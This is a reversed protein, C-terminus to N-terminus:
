ALVALQFGFCSAFVPFNIKSVIDCCNLATQFLDVSAESAGGVLLADYGDLVERGFNRREFVNLTDLEDSRIRCYRVFSEFEERRVRPDHRIQLLLLRM